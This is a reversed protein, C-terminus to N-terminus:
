NSTKSNKLLRTLVKEKKKLRVIFKISYSIIVIFFFILAIMATLNSLFSIPEKIADTRRFLIMMITTIVYCILSIIGICRATKVIINLYNIFISKEKNVEEIVKKVLELKEKETLNEMGKRM